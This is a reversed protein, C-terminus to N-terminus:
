VTTGRLLIETADAAADVVPAAVVVVAKELRTATEAFFRGTAGLSL